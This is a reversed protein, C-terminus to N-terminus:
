DRRASSLADATGDKRRGSHPGVAQDAADLESLV